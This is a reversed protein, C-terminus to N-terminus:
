IMLTFRLAGSFLSWCEGAADVASIHGQLWLMRDLLVLLLDVSNFPPVNECMWVRGSPPSM